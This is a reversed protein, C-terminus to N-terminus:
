LITINCYQLRQVTVRPRGKTCCEARQVWQPRATTKSRGQQPRAEHCWHGNKQRQKQQKELPSIFKNLEEIKQAQSKKMAEAQPEAVTPAATPAPTPAPTSAATPPAQPQTQQLKIIEDKESEYYKLRVDDEHIHTLRLPIHPM